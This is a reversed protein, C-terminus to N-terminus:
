RIFKEIFNKKTEPSLKANENLSKRIKEKFSDLIQQVNYSQNNAEVEHVIGLLHNIEGLLHEPIYQAFLAVIDRASTQTCEFYIDDWYFDCGLGRIRREVRSYQKKRIYYEALKAISIYTSDSLEQDSLIYELIKIQESTKDLPYEIVRVKKIKDIFLDYLDEIGEKLPSKFRQPVEKFSEKIRQYVGILTEASPSEGLQNLERTIKAITFFHKLTPDGQILNYWESSTTSLRALSKANKMLFHTIHLKIETPLTSINAKEQGETEAFATTQSALLSAFTALTAIKKIKNIM